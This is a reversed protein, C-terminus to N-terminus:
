LRRSRRKMTKGILSPRIPLPSYNERISRNKFFSLGAETSRLPPLPLNPTVQKVSNTKRHKGLPLVSLRSSANRTHPTATSASPHPRLPSFLASEEALQNDSISNDRCHRVPPLSSDRTETQIEVTVQSCYLSTLEATPLRLSFTQPKKATKTRSLLSSKHSKVRVPSNSLNRQTPENVSGEAVRLLKALHFEQWPGLYM